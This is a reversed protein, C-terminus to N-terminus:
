KNFLFASDANKNSVSQITGVTNAILNNLIEIAENVVPDFNDTLLLGTWVYPCASINKQQKTKPRM